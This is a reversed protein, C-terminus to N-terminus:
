SIRSWVTQTTVTGSAVALTSPLDTQGTLSYSIRPESPSISTRDGALMGSNADTRGYVSATTAPSTGTILMGLAYRSGATITTAPITFSRFAGSANLVSLSSTSANLLTYGDVDSFSYLGARCLTLTGTSVAHATSCYVVIQTANTITWFPSFHTFFVTGFTLSIVSSSVRRPTTEATGPALDLGAALVSASVVGSLKSVDIAAGAAVKANTVSGDTPTRTDSLRADATVVATGTVQSPDITPSAWGISYDSGSVKVLSQGTSGGSPVPTYNPTITTDGWLISTDAPATSAVTIGTSGTAGTDGKMGTVAIASVEYTGASISVDVNTTSISVAVNTNM